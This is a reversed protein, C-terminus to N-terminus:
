VSRDGHVFSRITVLDHCVRKEPRLKGVSSTAPKSLRVIFRQTAKPYVVEYWLTSGVRLLTHVNLARRPNAITRTNLMRITETNRNWLLHKAASSVAERNLTEDEILCSLCQLYLYGKPLVDGLSYRVM